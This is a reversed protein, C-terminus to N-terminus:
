EAYNRLCWSCCDEVKKARRYVPQEKSLICRLNHTTGQLEGWLIDYAKKAVCERCGIMNAYVVMWLKLEDTLKSNVVINVVFTKWSSSTRQHLYLVLYHIQCMTLVWYSNATIIALMSFNININKCSKSREWNLKITTKIQVQRALTSLSKGM